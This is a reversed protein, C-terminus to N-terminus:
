KKSMARRVEREVQVALLEDSIKDFVNAWDHALKWSREERQAKLKAEDETLHTFAKKEDMKRRGKTPHFIKGDAHKIRKGTLPLGAHYQLQMRRLTKPRMQSSPLGM